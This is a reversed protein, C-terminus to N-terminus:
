LISFRATGATLVCKASKYGHVTVYQIDGMETMNRTTHTVVM